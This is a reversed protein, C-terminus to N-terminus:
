PDCPNWQRRRKPSAWCTDRLPSRKSWSATPVCAGWTGNACAMQGSVCTTQMGVQATVKGCSQRVGETACKCGPADHMCAFCENTISARTDDCDPGRGCNQGFGDGDQDVNEPATGM